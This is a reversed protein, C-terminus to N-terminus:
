CKEELILDVDDFELEGYFVIARVLVRRIREIFLGLFVWVVEDLLCKEM